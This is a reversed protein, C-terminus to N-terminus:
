TPSCTELCFTPGALASRHTKHMSSILHDLKRFSTAKSCLSSGLSQKNGLAKPHHQRHSVPARFIDDMAQVIYIHVYVYFTYAHRTLETCNTSYARLLPSTTLQHIANEPEIGPRVVMACDIRVRPKLFSNLRERQVRIKKTQDFNVKM